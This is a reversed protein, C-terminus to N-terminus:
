RFSRFGLDQLTYGAPLLVLVGTKALLLNLEAALLDRDSAEVSSPGTYNSFYLKTTDTYTAANVTALGSYDLGSYKGGLMVTYSGSLSSPIELFVDREIDGFYNRMALTLMQKSADYITFCYTSSDSDSTRDFQHIYSNDEGMYIGNRRTYDVLYNYVSGTSVSGVSVTIRQTGAYANGDYVDVDIFATGASLGTIKLPLSDGSWEGWECSVVGPNSNEWHLTASDSAKETVTVSATQNPQM